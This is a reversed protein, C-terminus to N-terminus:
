RNRFNTKNSTRKYGGVVVDNEGIKEIIIKEGLEFKEIDKVLEETEKGSIEANVGYCKM